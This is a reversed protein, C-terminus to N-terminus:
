FTRRYEVRVIDEYWAANTLARGYGLYFSDGAGFMVRGGFKINLIDTGGADASCGGGATTCITNPPFPNPPTELGGVVHWGFVEVVPAFQVHTTKVLLYSPGIGYFFVDGAFDSLTQTGLLEGKSGGIPHWDGIQSEITWRDSLKRYYLLSPEFSYHDTGLGQSGNGSPFYARLQLTLYQNWDAVIAWKTGAQIDSLGWRTSTSPTEPPTTNPNFSGALFSGPQPEIWRVPLEGFVSFRRLPAYEAQLYAQQFNVDKSAGPFNPGPAGAVNTCSCQPYFFEARDPVSDDFAADFRIRVQSGVVADDVYGVMSLPISPTPKSRAKPSKKAKATKEPPTESQGSSPLTGTTPMRSPGTAPSAFPGASSTADIRESGLVPEQQQGRVGPPVLIVLVLLCLSSIAGRIV